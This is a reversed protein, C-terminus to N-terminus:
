RGLIKATLTRADVPKSFKSLRKGIQEVAKAVFAELTDLWKDSGITAYYDRDDGERFAVAEVQYRLVIEATDCRNITEVLEKDIKLRKLADAQLKGINHGYSKIRKVLPEGSDSWGSQLCLASKLVAEVALRLDIYCKVRRSKISQFDFEQSHFLIKYRKLYDRADEWYHHALRLRTPDPRSM